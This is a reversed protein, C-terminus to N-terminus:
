YCSPTKVMVPDDLRRNVCWCANLCMKRLGASRQDDLNNLSTLPLLVAPYINDNDGRCVMGMGHMNEYGACFERLSVM